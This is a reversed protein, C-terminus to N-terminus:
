NLRNLFNRKGKIFIRNDCTSGFCCSKDVAVSSIRFCNREQGRKEHYLNCFTILLDKLIKEEEVESSEVSM